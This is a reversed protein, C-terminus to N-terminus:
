KEGDAYWLSSIITALEKAGVYGGFARLPVSIHPLAHKIVEVTRDGFRSVLIPVLYRWPMQSPSIGMRQLERVTSLYTSLGVLPSLLHLIRKAESGPVGLVAAITGADGDPMVSVIASRVTEIVNDIQQRTVQYPWMVNERTSYVIPVVDGSTTVAVIGVPSEGRIRVTPKM